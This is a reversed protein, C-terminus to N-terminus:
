PQQRGMSVFIRDDATVYVGGSAISNVISFDHWRVAGSSQELCWISKTSVAATNAVIIFDSGFAIQSRSVANVNSATWVVAGTTPNVRRFSGSQTVYVNADIPNYVIIASSVVSLSANFIESGDSLNSAPYKRIKSPSESTITWVNTGDTCASRYGGGLPPATRSSLQSSINTADYTDLSTEGLVTVFIGGYSDADLPNSATGTDSTVTGSSNIVSHKGTTPGRFVIVSGSTPCHFINGQGGGQVTIRHTVDGDSPDIRYIGGTGAAWLFGDGAEHALRGGLPMATPVTVTSNAGRSSDWLKTEEDGEYLCGIANHGAIDPTQGYGGVAFLKDDSTFIVDLDYTLDTSTRPRGRDRRSVIEGTVADYEAITMATGSGTASGGGSGSGPVPQRIQQPVRLFQGPVGEMRKTQKAIRQADKKRFIGYDGAM